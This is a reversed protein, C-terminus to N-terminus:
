CNGGALAVLCHRNALWLHWYGVDAVRGVRDKCSSGASHQASDGAHKTPVQHEPHSPHCPFHTRVWAREPQLGRNAGCQVCSPSRKCGFDSWLGRGVRRRWGAQHGWRHWEGAKQPPGPQCLQGPGEHEARQGSHRWELGGGRHRQALAGQRPVQFRVAVAPGAPGCFLGLSCNRSLDEGPDGHRAREEPLGAPDAEIASEGFRHPATGAM